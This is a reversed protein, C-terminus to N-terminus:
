SVCFVACQVYNNFSVLTKLTLVVSSSGAIPYLKMVVDLHEQFRPLLGLTKVSLNANNNEICSLTRRSVGVLKAYSDQSM